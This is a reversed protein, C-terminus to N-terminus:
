WLEEDVDSEEMEEDEAENEEEGEEGEDEGEEKDDDDDEDDSENVWDGDNKDDGDGGDGGGSPLCDPPDFPIDWKEREVPDNIRNLEDLVARCFVHLEFETHQCTPYHTATYLCM